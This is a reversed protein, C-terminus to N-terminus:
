IGGLLPYRYPRGNFAQVAAYIGFVIQTIGLVVAVLWVGCFILPFAGFSADNPNGGTSAAIALFFGGLWLPLVLVLILVTFILHFFFAQKSQHAAYPQTGRAVLWLILPLILPAFFVSLHAIGAMTREGDPIGSPHPPRYAYQPYPYPYPGYGYGPPPPPAQYGYGPSPSSPPPPPPTNGAQGPGPNTM